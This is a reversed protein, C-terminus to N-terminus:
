DHGEAARVADRIVDRVYDPISACTLAKRCGELLAARDAELKRLEDSKVVLEAAALRADRHGSLYPEAAPPIAGEYRAPLNTITAALENAVGM